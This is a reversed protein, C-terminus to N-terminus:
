HSAVFAENFLFERLLIESAEDDSVPRGNKALFPRPSEDQKVDLDINTAINLRSCTATIRFGTPEYSIHLSVDEPRYHEPAVRKTVVRTLRLRNSNEPKVTVPSYQQEHCTNFSECVEKITVTLNEWIDRGSAGILRTKEANREIWNVAGLKALFLALGTHLSSTM